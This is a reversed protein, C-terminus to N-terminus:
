FALEETGAYYASVSFGLERLFMVYRYAVYRDGIRRLFRSHGGFFTHNLDYIDYMSIEM